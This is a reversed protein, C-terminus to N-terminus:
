WRVLGSLDAAAEVAAPRLAGAGRSRHRTTWGTTYRRPGARLAARKLLRICVLCRALQSGSSLRARCSLFDTTLCSSTPGVSWLTVLNVLQRQRLAQSRRGTLVVPRPRSRVPEMIVGDEEWCTLVIVATVLGCWVDRGVPPARGFVWGLGM